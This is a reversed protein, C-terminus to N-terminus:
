SFWRSASKEEMVSRIVNALLPSIEIVKINKLSKKAEATLPISNSVVIEHFGADKLREVAPGSFVPHTTCLYVDKKAGHAVLCKRANAVSGGTDVMDDFVVATKGKVDGVVHTVESINHRPRTKHMIALSAGLADAFKKAQKAGGADPSVVVIDGKLKKKLFYDSMLKWANVNDVPIRFFGQIQDSHLQVTVIHNAGSEVLLDAILKASITERAEHVKDQRAYGFYPLIVHISKAFSQRAASLLLFLEMLEENVRGANCTAVIFADKGRVSEGLRVYTEGCSFKKVVVPSVKIGLERAIKEALEPHSTAPFLRINEKKM